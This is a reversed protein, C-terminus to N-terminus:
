GGEVEVKISPGMSTKIYLSRINGVGRELKSTVRKWMEIANATINEESQTRSGVITHFTVRDRSRIIATSQLGSAIMGPDVNPPVPRPMKGRPGLVIGLYRGITAM